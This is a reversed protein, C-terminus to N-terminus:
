EGPFKKKGSFIKNKKNLFIVANNKFRKTM